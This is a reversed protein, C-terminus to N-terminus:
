NEMEGKEADPDEGSAGPLLERELDRYPHGRHESFQLAGFLRHRQHCWDDGGAGNRSRRDRARPQIVLCIRIATKIKELQSFLRM